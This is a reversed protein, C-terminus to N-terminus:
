DPHLRNYEHEIEERYEKVCNYVITQHIGTAESTKTTSGLELYVLFLENLFWERTNEKRPTSLYDDMFQQFETKDTTNPKVKNDTVYKLRGTEKNFPSNPDCWQNTATKRFYSFLTNRAREDKTVGREWLIMSCFQLLDNALDNNRALQKCVSIYRKDNFIETIYDM